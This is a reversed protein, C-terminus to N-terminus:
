YFVISENADTSQLLQTLLEIAENSLSKMEEQIKKKYNQATNHEPGM